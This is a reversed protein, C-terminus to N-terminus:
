YSDRELWPRCANYLELLVPDVAMARDFIAQESRKYFQFAGVAVFDAYSVAFFDLTLLRSIWRQLFFYFTHALLILSGTKGMFFPGSPDEKLLQAVEGLAKTANQWVQDEPVSKEFEDLSMGFQEKRTQEFYEASRPNLINRPNRPALLTFLPGVLGM